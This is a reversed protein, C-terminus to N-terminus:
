RGPTAKTRLSGATGKRVYEVWADEAELTPSIRTFGNERMYSLCDSVWEM